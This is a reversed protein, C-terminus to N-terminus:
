ANCINNNIKGYCVHGTIWHLQPFLRWLNCTKIISKKKIIVYKKHKSSTIKVLCDANGHSGVISGKRDVQEKM